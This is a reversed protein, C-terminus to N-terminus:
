RQSHEHIMTILDIVQQPDTEKIIGHGLNFIHGPRGAVRDLIARARELLREKPALLLSQDLNGQVSVSDPGGLADWSALLDCTSDIGIVDCDTQKFLHLLHGTHTGFLIVPIGPPLGDVLKLMHPLLFEEYDAATVTGVWSDFIQLAQAGAEVQMKLYAQLAEVLIEMLAHWADSHCYMMTKTNAYQRSGAGECAYSALTFPAGCFGILPIDPPLQERCLRIADGVYSCDAAAQLPDGLAQVSQLDRLCPSLRPGEGKGFQLNMGLSELILLIDAFIIAADAKIIRQADVTVRAAAQPDRCLELFSYNARVDRYEQMYRGAQRMLWVPTHPTAEGRCACMFPADWLAADIQQQNGHSRIRAM